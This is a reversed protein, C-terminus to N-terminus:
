LDDQLTEPGTEERSLFLQNLFIEFRQLTGEFRIDDESMIAFVTVLIMPEEGIQGPVCKAIV